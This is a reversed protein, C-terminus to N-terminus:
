GGAGMGHPSKMAPSGHPSPAAVAPLPLAQAPAEITIPQNWDSYETVLGGNGMVIVVPLHQDDLCVGYGLGQANPHDITVNWVQCSKGLLTVNKGRSLKFKDQALAFVSLLDRGETLMAWPSPVGPNKGCPSWNTDPVDQYYWTGNDNVYFRKGVRVMERRISGIQSIIRERAPCSVEFRTEMVNGDHVSLKTTMRWSTAAQKAAFAAQMAEDGSVFRNKVAGIIRSCGAVAGLGAVLLFVILAKKM